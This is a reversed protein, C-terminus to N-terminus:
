KKVEKTVLISDNKAKDLVIPTISIIKGTPVFVSIKNMEEDTFGNHLQWEKKNM